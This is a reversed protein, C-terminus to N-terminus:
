IAPLSRAGPWFYPLNLFTLMTIYYWTYYKYCRNRLFLVAIIVQYKNDSTFTWEQVKILYLTKLLKKSDEGMTNRLVTKM